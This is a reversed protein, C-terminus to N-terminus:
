DDAHEGDGLHWDHRMWEEVEDPHVDATTPGGEHLPADRRMAVLEAAVETNANENQSREGDSAPTPEGKGEKAAGAKDEETEIVSVAPADVM